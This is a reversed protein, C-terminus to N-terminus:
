PDGCAFFQGSTARYFIADMITLTSPRKNQARGATAYYIRIPPIQRRFHSCHAWHWHPLFYAFHSFIRALIALIKKAPAGGGRSGPGEDPCRGFKKGGGGYKKAMKANNRLYRTPAARTM